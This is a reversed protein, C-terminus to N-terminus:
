DHVDRRKLVNANCWEHIRQDIAGDISPKFSIRFHGLGALVMMFLVSGGYVDINVFDIVPSSWFISGHMTSVVVTCERIEIYLDMASGDEFIERLIAESETTVKFEYRTM